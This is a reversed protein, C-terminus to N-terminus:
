WIAESCVWSTSLQQMKDHGLDLFIWFNHAAGCFQRWVGFLYSEPPLNRCILNLLQSYDLHSSHAPEPNAVQVGSIHTADTCVSIMGRKLNWGAHTDPQNDATHTGNEFHHVLVWHVILHLLSLSNILRSVSPAFICAHYIEYTICIHAHSWVKRPTTWSTQVCHLHNDWLKFKFLAYSKTQISSYGICQDQLLHMRPPCMHDIGTNSEFGM